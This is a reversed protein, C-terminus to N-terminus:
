KHERPCAAVGDDFGESYGTRYGLCFPRYCEEDRCPGPPHQQKAKAM